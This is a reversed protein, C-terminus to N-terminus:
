LLVFLLQCNRSDAVVAHAVFFVNVQNSDAAGGHRRERSQQLSASMADGTGIGRGIRGHRIEQQRQPDAHACGKEGEFRSGRGSRTTTPFTTDRPLTSNSCTRSSRMGNQESGWIRCWSNRCLLSTSATAPVCPLVVVVEISAHINWEAPRFGDNRMPPIASFKPLLKATPEPFFKMM